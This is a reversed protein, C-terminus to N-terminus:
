SPVLGSRNHKRERQILLRELVQPKRGIGLTTGTDDHDAEYVRVTLTTTGGGTTPFDLIEVLDGARIQYSSTDV